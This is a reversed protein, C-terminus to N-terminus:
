PAAEDDHAAFDPEPKKVLFQLKKLRDLEAELQYVRQMRETEAAALAHEANKHWHVPSIYAMHGPGDSVRVGGDDVVEIAKMPVIEGNNLADFTIWVIM